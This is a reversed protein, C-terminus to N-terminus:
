SAANIMQDSLAQHRSVDLQHSSTDFQVIEYGSNSPHTSTSLNKTRRNSRDDNAISEVDGNLNSNSLEFSPDVDIRVSLDRSAVEDANANPSGENVKKQIMWLVLVIVFIVVVAIM